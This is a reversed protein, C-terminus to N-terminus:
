FNIPDHIPPFLPLVTFDFTSLWVNTPIRLFILFDSLLLIELPYQLLITKCPTHIHVAVRGDRFYWENDKQLEYTLFYKLIYISLIKLYKTTNSTM